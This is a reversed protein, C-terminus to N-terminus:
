PKTERGSNDSNQSAYIASKGDIEEPNLGLSRVMEKLMEVRSPKTKPKVCLGSAAYGGEPFRHV